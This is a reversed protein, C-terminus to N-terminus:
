GNKFLTVLYIFDEYFISPPFLNWMFLPAELSRTLPSSSFFPDQLSSGGYLKDADLSVLRIEARSGSLWICKQSISASQKGPIAKSKQFYLLLFFYTKVGYWKGM